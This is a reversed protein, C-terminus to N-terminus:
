KEDFVRLLSEFCHLFNFFFFLLLASVECQECAITAERPEKECIQCLLKVNKSELYKEVIRQMAKYKPLNNAGGDDFFVTKQCIPCSLCITGSSPPFGGGNGPTGVYSGPRSSGTSNNSSCVVGSDTESLISLKDAEQDSGNTSTGNNVSSSDTAISEAASSDSPPGQINVACNLCLSHWCPLLVPDTYFKKCSPCRLEDEMM